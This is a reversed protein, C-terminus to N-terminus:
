IHTQTATWPPQRQKGAELTHPPLPALAGQGEGMGTPAWACIVFVSVRAAPLMFGIVHGLM